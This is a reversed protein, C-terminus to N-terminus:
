QTCRRCELFSRCLRLHTRVSLETPMMTGRHVDAWLADENSPLVHGERLCRTVSSYGVADRGLTTASDEYLTRASRGKLALHAIIMQQEVKLDGKVDSNFMRHACLIVGCPWDGPRWPGIIVYSGLVLLTLIQHCKPRKAHVPHQSVRRRTCCGIGNGTRLFSKRM